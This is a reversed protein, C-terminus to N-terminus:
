SDTKNFISDFDLTTEMKINKLLAKKSPRGIKQPVPANGNLKLFRQYEYRAAMMDAQHMVFPLSNKLVNDKNYTIYYQKNADDYLGDTLKIGLYETESIQIGFHNLMWFTRDNLNMYQMNPNTKYIKGQNEIHWQSDNPIYWSETENGVKGLDHHLATFIVTEEDYSGELMDSEGWLKHVNVANRVVRLVHDVYGGAFANHFHETSSAPTLLIRDELLDYMKNLSELRKGTFTENIISRFLNYNKEIEKEDLIHIM